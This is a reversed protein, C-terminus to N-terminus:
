RRCRQVRDTTHHRATSDTPVIVTGSSHDMTSANYQVRVIAAQKCAKCANVVSGVWVDQMGKIARIDPSKSVHVRANPVHTGLQM